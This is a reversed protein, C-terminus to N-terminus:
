ESKCEQIDWLIKGGLFIIPFLALSFFCIGVGAFSYLGTFFYKVLSYFSVFLGVSFFLINLMAARVIINEIKM